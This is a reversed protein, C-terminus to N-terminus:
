PSMDDTDLGKSDMAICYVPSVSMTTHISSDPLMYVASTPLFVSVIRGTGHSQRRHHLAGLHRGHNELSQHTSIKRHLVSSCRLRLRRAACYKPSFLQELGISLVLIPYKQVSRISDIAAITNECFYQLPQSCKRVLYSMQKASPSYYFSSKSHLKPKQKAQFQVCPCTSIFPKCQQQNIHHRSM